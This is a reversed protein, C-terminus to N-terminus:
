KQKPWRWATWVILSTILIEVIGLFIYFAHWLDISNVITLIMIGTYFLGFIINLWRNLKPKLMVSLFVMIAPIAMLISAAFLKVPTDLIMKGDILHGIHGPVFFEFYDGYVYCFMVSVWLASLKIKVNVKFDELVGTNAKNPNM